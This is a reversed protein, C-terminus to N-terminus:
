AVSLYYKTVVEDILKKFKSHMYKHHTSCLPILNKPDNNSHDCDYHHVEVINSEGCVVCEKKHYLFCTTQYTDQKWNGNGEGTRFHKNSCAYSCTVSPGSFEKECVPCVTLGECKEVHRKYVNNGFSKKCKPCEIKMHAM